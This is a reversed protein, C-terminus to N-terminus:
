TQNIVYLFHKNEELMDPKYENIEKRKTVMSRVINIKSGPYINVLYIADIFNQIKFM